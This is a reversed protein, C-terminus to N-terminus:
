LAATLVSTGPEVGLARAARECIANEGIAGRAVRFDPGTGTAILMPTGGERVDAIEVPQAERVTRVTDIDCVL